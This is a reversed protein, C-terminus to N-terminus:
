RDAPMMEAMGVGVEVGNMMEAMGVGVEVGDVGFLLEQSRLTEGLQLNQSYEQKHVEPTRLTAGDM